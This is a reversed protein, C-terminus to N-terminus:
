VLMKGVSSNRSAFSTKLHNAHSYMAAITLQVELNMVVGVWVTTWPTHSVFLFEGVVEAASM